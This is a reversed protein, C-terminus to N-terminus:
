SLEVNMEDGLQKWGDVINYKNGRLSSRNRYDGSALNDATNSAGALAHCYSVATFSTALYRVFPTSVKM